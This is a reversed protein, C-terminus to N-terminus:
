EYKIRNKIKVKKIYNLLKICQNPEMTQYFRMNNNRGIFELCYKTLLDFNQDLNIGTLIILIINIILFAFFIEPFFVTFDIKYCELVKFNLISFKKIGSSKETLKFKEPCYCLVQM